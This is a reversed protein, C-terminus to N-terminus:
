ETADTTGGSSCSTLAAGTDSDFFHKGDTCCWRFTKANGTDEKEGMREAKYDSGYASRCTQTVLAAQVIPWVVFYLVAGIAAIAILTIVTMNLEGTAEKM